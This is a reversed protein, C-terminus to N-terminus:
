IDELAMQLKGDNILLLLLNLFFPAILLLIVFDLVMDLNYHMFFKIKHFFMGPTLLLLTLLMLFFLIFVGFKHKESLFMSEYFSRSITKQETIYLPLAFCFMALFVAVLAICVLFMTTHVASPDDILKGLATLLFRGFYYVLVVGVVYILLTMYIKPLRRCTTIFGAGLSLPEDKFGRDAMLLAGSFFFALLLAAVVRIGYDAYPGLNLKLAFFYLGNLIAIFMLYFFVNKLTLYHWRVARYFMDSFTSQTNLYIIM